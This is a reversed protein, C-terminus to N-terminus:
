AQRQPTEGKLQELAAHGRTKGNTHNVLVQKWGGLRQSHM